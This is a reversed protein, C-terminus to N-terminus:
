ENEKGELPEGGLFIMDTQFPINTGMKMLRGLRYMLDWLQFESYGEEDTKPLTFEGIYDGYYAYLEDHQRKLEALGESTLKVKVAHNANFKFDVPKSEDCCPKLLSLPALETMELRAVLTDREREWKTLTDKISEDVEDDLLPMIGYVTNIKHELGEIRKITEQVKM